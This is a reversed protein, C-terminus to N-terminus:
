VESLLFAETMYLGIPNCYKYIFISFSFNGEGAPNKGGPNCEEVWLTRNRKYFLVRFYLTKQIKYSPNKNESFIDVIFSGTFHGKRYLKIFVDNLNTICVETHRSENVFYLNEQLVNVRSAIENLELPEM